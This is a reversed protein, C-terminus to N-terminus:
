VETQYRNLSQWGNLESGITSLGTIANKYMAEALEKDLLYQFCEGKALKEILTAPHGEMKLKLISKSLQKDYEAMTVAKNKAREKLQERGVELLKIKEEIKESVKTLEMIEGQVQNSFRM